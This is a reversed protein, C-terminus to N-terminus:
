VHARGIEHYYAKAISSAFHGGEKEMMQAARHGETYDMRMEGLSQGVVNHPM